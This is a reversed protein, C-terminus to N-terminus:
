LASFLQDCNSNPVEQIQPTDLVLKELNSSNGWIVYTIWAEECKM